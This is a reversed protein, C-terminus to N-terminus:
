RTWAGSFRELEDQHIWGGCLLCTAGPEGDPHELAWHDFHEADMSEAAELLRVGTVSPLWHWGAFSLRDDDDPGHWEYTRQLTKVSMLLGALWYIRRALRRNLPVSM